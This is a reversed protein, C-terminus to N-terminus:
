KVLEILCISRCSALHDNTNTSLDVRIESDKCDEEKCEAWKHNDYTAFQIKYSKPEFCKLIKKLDNSDYQQLHNFIFKKGFPITILVRGGVKLIRKFELIAELYSENEKKIHGHMKSATYNYNSNDFGIHELTSICLIYDFFEENFIKDRLDQYVYSVNYKNFNEIEPSLTQITVNNSSNIRNIIFDFNMTSGADLFNKNKLNSIHQFIWKYEVIREDLGTANTVTLDNSLTDIAKIINKKKVYGYGLTYPKKKLQWLLGLLPDLIKKLIKKLM